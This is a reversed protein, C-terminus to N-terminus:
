YCYHIRFFTSIFPTPRTKAMGEYKGSTSLFVALLKFRPGGLYLAPSRGVGSGRATCNVRKM